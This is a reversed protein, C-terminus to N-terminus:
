ERKPQNSRIKLLVLLYDELVYAQTGNIDGAWGRAVGALEDFFSCARRWERVAKRIEKMGWRASVHCLVPIDTM